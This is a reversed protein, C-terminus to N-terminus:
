VGEQYEIHEDVIKKLRELEISLSKYDDNTLNMDVFSEGVIIRIKDIYENM